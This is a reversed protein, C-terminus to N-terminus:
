PSLQKRPPIKVLWVGKVRVMAEQPFVRVREHGLREEPM